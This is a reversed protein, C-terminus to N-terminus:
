GTQNVAKHHRKQKGRGEENDGWLFSTRSMFITLAASCSLPPPIKYSKQAQKRQQSATFVSFPVNFANIKEKRSGKLICFPCFEDLV